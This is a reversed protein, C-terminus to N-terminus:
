RQKKRAGSGGAFRTLDPKFRDELTKPSSPVATHRMEIKVPKVRWLFIFCGTFVALFFSLVAPGAWLDAARAPEARSFDNPHLHLPVSEGPSAGRLGNSRPILVEGAKGRDEYIFKVYAGDQGAATDAVRAEVARWHRSRELSAAASNWALWGFGAVFPLLGFVGIARPLWSLNPPKADMFAM